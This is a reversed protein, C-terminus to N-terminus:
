VLVWFGFKVPFFIYRWQRSTQLNEVNLLKMVEKKQFLIENGGSKRTCAAM